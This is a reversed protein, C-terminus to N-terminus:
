VRQNYRTRTIQGDPAVELVHVRLPGRRINAVTVVHGKGGPAELITARVTNPHPDIGLEAMCASIIEAQQRKMVPQSM